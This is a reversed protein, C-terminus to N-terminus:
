RKNFEDGQKSDEESYEPQCTHNFTVMNIIAAGEFKHQHSFGSSVM